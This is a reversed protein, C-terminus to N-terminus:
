TFKKAKFSKKVKLLNEIIKNSSYGVKNKIKINEIM